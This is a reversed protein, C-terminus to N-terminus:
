AGHVREFWLTVPGDNHIEVQMMAGFEGTAVTIGRSRFAEIFAQYLPIAHDPHAANLFSPRRGKRTDGYLTFQSVILVAGEVEDLSRNMKDAEDAFIRLGSLKEALWQVETETDDHAFGVLLCFGIGIRGVERGDIAVSAAKVRQLVVRM